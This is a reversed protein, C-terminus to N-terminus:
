KRLPVDIYESYVARDDESMENIRVGILYGSDSEDEDLREYRVPAARIQITRGSLQLEILLMRGEGVLYHEDIRIAPVVIALGHASIDRTHGELAALPRRGNVKKNSEVLSVFAPLRM